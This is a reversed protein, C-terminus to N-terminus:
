GGQIEASTAALKSLEGGVACLEVVYQNGLRALHKSLVMHNEVM